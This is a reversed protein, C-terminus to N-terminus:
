NARQKKDTLYYVKFTENDFVLALENSHHNLVWDIAKKNHPRQMTPATILYKAQIIQLYKMFWDPSDIQDPYTSAPRRTFFSLVRPEKTVFTDTTQTHNSVFSFLQELKVSLTSPGIFGSKMDSLGIANIYIILLLGTLSIKIPHRCFSTIKLFGTFLYMVYFPLIPLLYRFGDFGAFLLITCFYGIFYIETFRIKQRLATIYGTLVCINAFLYFYGSFPLYRIQLFRYLSWFYREGQKFINEPNINIHSFTTPSATGSELLLDLQQKFELHVPTAEFVLKQTMALLLFLGIAVVSRMTVRRYHWLEYTVLTLPLVLAIERIGYSLYMTFGLLVAYIYTQKSDSLQMLLLALLVFFLFPYESLIRDKFDWFEPNLGLYLVLLTSAVNSIHQKFIIKVIVLSSIFFGILTIKMAMFNLGFIAYVVSLILPFIPPYAQPAVYAMANSIYLPDIYPKGEILNIAHRIYQLDDGVWYHGTRLTLAYFIALITLSIGFLWTDNIDSVTEGVKSLLTKKPELNASM